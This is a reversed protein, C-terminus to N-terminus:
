AKSPTWSRSCITLAFIREECVRVISAASTGTLAQEGSALPRAAHGQVALLEAGVQADDVGVILRKLESSGQVGVKLHQVDIHGLDPATAGSHNPSLAPVLLQTPPQGNVSDPACLKPM